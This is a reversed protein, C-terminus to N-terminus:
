EIKAARRSGEHLYLLLLPLAISLVHFINFGTKYQLTALHRDNECLHETELHETQESTDYVFTTM